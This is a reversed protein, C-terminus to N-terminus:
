PVFRVLALEGGAANRVVIITENLPVHFGERNFYISVTEPGHLAFPFKRAEPQHHAAGSLDVPTVEVRSNASKLLLSPADPADARILDIQAIAQDAPLLLNMTILTDFGAAPVKQQYMEATLLPLIRRGRHVRFEFNDIAFAPEFQQMIYDYLPGGPTLGHKRLFDLHETQVIVCADPHSELSAIIAQQETANLLSFWHTVNTLTPTPLGTWANLSFMGPLSFVMDSHADANFVLLRFLATTADPLRVAEAGPLDLPRSDLYRRGIQALRVGSVVALAVLGLQLGLGVARVSRFAATHTQALWRVAHWAGITALPIALFTGWAIQSGPVPYVHLWQGLFLLGLWTQARGMAASENGLPWLFFWLCPASIGFVVNDPSVAPFRCIMVVLGAAAVLRLGAVISDVPWGMPRRIILIQCALFIGLSLVAVARAGPPWHFVLSFHTPHHLPGLVVGELLEAPTTGRAFVVGIVVLLVAGAALSALGWLRAGCDPAAGRAAAVVAPVVSLTFIIAYTQVWEVRLLPRMLLWPLVAAGAALAWPAWRRVRDNRSHLLLVAFTSLAAFAGINIKTLLLIASGAGALGAWRSWREAALWRCGLLAMLATILAILGGPHSPESIMIWLYVFVSALVALMAASSRTARWTMWATLTASGSWALVTLSRGVIHTLPVGLLHLFYYFVYPFPGYQSYVEGYLHGHVIFNHLSILVYGEDDYFMFASFLMGAAAVTLAASALLLLLLPLRILGGKM